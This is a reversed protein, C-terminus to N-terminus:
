IEPDDNLMKKRSENKPKKPENAPKQEKKSAVARKVTKKATAPKKATTKATRKVIKTKAPEPEPTETTKAKAKRKPKEEKIDDVTVATNEDPNKEAKSKKVLESLTYVKYTDTLNKARLSITGNCIILTNDLKKDEIQALALLHPLKAGNPSNTQEKFEYTPKTRWDKPRFNFIRKIPLEAFKLNWTDRQGFLQIENEEHFAKGSKFDVIVLEKDKKGPERIYGAVDLTLAYGDRYNVIPMEIALPEFEFDLMWQALSLMNKRLTEAHNVFTGPLCETEIFFNLKDRLRNLDYEGNIMLDAYQGHMFTGYHGREVKYEEAQIYGMDAIWKILREDKPMTQAILTTISPFFHPEGAENFTYYYRHGARDLRYLKEDSVKLAMEDFFLATVEEVTAGPAIDYVAPNSEIQVGELEPIIQQEGTVDPFKDAPLNDGVTGLQKKVPDNNGTEKKARM